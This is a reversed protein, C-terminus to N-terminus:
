AISATAYQIREQCNSLTSTYDGGGLFRWWLETPLASAEYAGPRPNSDWQHSLYYLGSLLFRGTFPRKKLLIGLM